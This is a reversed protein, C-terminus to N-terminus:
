QESDEKKNKRKHLLKYVSTALFGIFAGGIIASTGWITVDSLMDYWGIQVVTEDRLLVLTYVAYYAIVAVLWVIISAWIALKRSGTKKMEYVVVLISPVMWILGVLLLYPYKLHQRATTEIYFDAVGFAVASLIYVSWRKLRNM